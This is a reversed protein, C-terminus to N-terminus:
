LNLKSYCLKKEIESKCKHKKEVLSLSFVSEAGNMEINKYKLCFWNAARPLFRVAAFELFGGLFLTVGGLLLDLLDSLWGIISDGGSGGLSGTSFGSAFM